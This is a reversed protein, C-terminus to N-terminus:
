RELWNPKKGYREDIPKVRPTMSPIIMMGVPGEEVKEPYLYRRYYRDAQDKTLGCVASGNWGCILARGNVSRSENICRNHPMDSQECSDVLAIVDNDFPLSINHNGKIIRFADEASKFIAIYPCYGPELVVVRM